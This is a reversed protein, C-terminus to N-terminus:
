ALAAILTDLGGAVDSGLHFRIVRRHVDLLAQRDGLAQAAKLAGFSISSEPSGAEDPIDADQPSDATIQIFLGGGADGKHLQGTSHLFRPGYGLTTALRTRARLGARLESLARDTEVNPKLYAQLTVYDGLQAQDFFARLADGATIVDLDHILDEQLDGYVTIGDSRLTPALVPLEGKEHFATVMQLALVKASEVNPQDFPNIDLRHGAVVTAMEWLFFQGGLDYIDKLRLRVVPHGADELDNVAADFTNDGDLRLYVFLRDDRYVEPAGVPEGVVPLIGKGEKGTSEALLQEVWDGFSAIAPSTILTVKDRGAKALEGLIVGLRAGYNDGDVPGNYGQNDGAMALARELLTEVDVGVLAAPVLGFYSLVSYRGGINPDNRFIARFNHRAALEDLQSGADTIAIFHNGAQEVGVAEAVRNYFFKFFSLTEVTGGSKTSVIFMTRTLDLQEVNALVAGPDTSDLVKLDLYGHKVGYTESFVEPALSSGGMGLLLVHTCPRGDQDGQRVAEVLAELLSIEEIMVEAIKLWGLRNTIETPDSKWVTHDHAWIRSLIRQDEIEALASDVVEQYEGLNTSFM